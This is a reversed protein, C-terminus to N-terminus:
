LRHGSIEGPEPHGPDTGLGPGLALAQREQALALIRELGDSSLTGSATEPLPVTMPEVVMPEVVAHISEPV